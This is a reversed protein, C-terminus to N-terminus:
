GYYEYLAEPIRMMTSGYSRPATAKNTSNSYPEGRLKTIKYNSLCKLINGSEEGNHIQGAILNNGPYNM